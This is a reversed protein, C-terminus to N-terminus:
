NNQAGQQIWRLIRQYDPDNTNTWLQSHAFPYGNCEPAAFGDALPMCLILSDAPAVTNVRSGTRGAINTTGFLGQSNNPNLLDNPTDDLVQNGSATTNNHCGASACTQREWTTENAGPQTHVNQRFSIDTTVTDQTSGASTNGVADRAAVSFDYDSDPDLNSVFATVTNGNPAAVNQTFTNNGEDTYTVVYSVVGVNDSSASWSLGVRFSTAAGNAITEETANLNQPISPPVDDPAAVLGITVTAEDIGGFGDDVAYVFSDSAAPPVFVDDTYTYRFSGDPLVQVTGFNPGMGVVLAATLTDGDPDSDGTVTTDNVTLSNALELSFADDGAIPARNMVDVMEVSTAENAGPNVVLTVEYVGPVDTVFASEVSDASTLAAASGMPASLAWSFTDAFQSDGGDLRVTDGRNIQIGLGNFSATPTGPATPTEALALRDVLFAGLVDSPSAEGNPPVWFRDMTLRASPMVGQQFVTNNILQDNAAFAQFTDFRLEDNEVNTHCMRCNQAYVDQYIEEANAPNTGILVGNEDFVDENNRWGPPPTSDDFTPNVFDGTADDFGGYWNEVLVRAAETQCGPTTCYTSHAHLNLKRLQDAQGAASFDGFEALDDAVTDGDFRVPAETIAPDTDAFLFSELDWPLFTASLNGNAVSVFQGNGNDVQMPWSYCAPNDGDTCRDLLLDEVGPPKVGGHCATCNGPTYREGRGDFNMSGIRVSDGAQTDQYTFFKVFREANPDTLEARTAPTYEMVVTVISDFQRIAGELTSYNVVFSYVNGFQDRRSYMDRGFGLDYNNVYTAHAFEGTGNIAQDFLQGNANGFGAQQIWQNLTLRSDDPDVTRYYVEATLASERRDISGLIDELEIVGFTTTGAGANQILAAEEITGERVTVVEDSSGDTLVILEANDQAGDACLELAVVVRAAHVNFPDLLRDRQNADVFQQNFDFLDFRPVPITFRPNSFAAVQGALDTTAAVTAPWAGDLGTAVNACSAAGTRDTPTLDEIPNIFCGNIMNDAPIGAAFDARTFVCPLDPQSRPPYVLYAQASVSFAEGAGTAAGNALAAVVRFSDFTGIEVGTQGRLDLSLFENADQAPVVDVSVTASTTQNDSDLIELSFTLTEQQTVDPATFTVTTSNREVLQVAPGGTQSWTWELLPGDLDESDKGTLIVESGERFVNSTEGGNLVQPRAVPPNAAADDDGVESGFSGSDCGHLVLAAALGAGLTRWTIQAM